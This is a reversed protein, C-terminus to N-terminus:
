RNARDFDLVNELFDDHLQRVSDSSASGGYEKVRQDLYKKRKDKDWLVRYNGGLSQKYQMTAIAIKDAEKENMGKESKLQEAFRLAMVQDEKDTIGRTIYNNVVRQRMAKGQGPFEKNYHEIVDERNYWKRGYEEVTQVNEGQYSGEKYAEVIGNRGQGMRSTAFVSAGVTGIGEVPNYNGDTISIGAQVAAAGIGVALGASGKIIKGVLRKTNEGPDKGPYWVPKVATKAVNKVGKIVKSVKGANKKNNEDRTQNMRRAEKRNRQEAREREKSKTQEQQKDQQNPNQQENRGAMKKLEEKGFRKELYQNEAMRRKVKKLLKSSQKLLEERKEPSINPDQAALNLRKIEKLLQSTTRKDNDAYQWNGNFLAENERVRNELQAELGSVQSNLKEIEKPSNDGYKLKGQKSALMDLISGISKNDGDNFSLGGLEDISNGSVEQRARYISNDVNSLTPDEGSDTGGSSGSRSSGPSAFDDDGSHRSSSGGRIDTGIFSDFNATDNYADMLELDNDDYNYDNGSSGSSSGSKGKKNKGSFPHLPDRIYNTLAGTIAGTAFAGAIGGVSGADAKEFGFINKLLREAQSIFALAAIAYLPNNVALSLSTSVLLYYLIYHVPQLFANFMYDKLWTNFGKAQGNMKDIPYTLAVIPAILTLFAMRIVRKLYVITFKITYTILAIYIVLHGIKASFHQQQMQFRALGILNTKFSEGTALKVEIVGAISGILETIEETVAFIFGMIYHMVFVLAVAIIWNYIMEKYKAKEKANSSLIIKIGTYILVSLLGIIAVMRLVQYWQSVISRIDEWQSVIKKNGESSVDHDSEKIFNANLFPFNGNFVEESSYKFNPYELDLAGSVTRYEDLEEENITFTTTPDGLDTTIDEISQVMVPEFGEQVMFSSVISVISDIVFQFFWVTPEMLIGAYTDLGTDPSIIDEFTFDNIGGSGGSGKYGNFLWEILDSRGNGDEDLNFAENPVAGHDGPVVKVEDANPIQKYQNAYFSYCTGDNTGKYGRTPMTVDAYNIKKSGNVLLDGNADYGSLIALKSFRYPMLDTRGAMYLAGAGGLSHGCIVINSTDINGKEKVFTEIVNAVKTAINDDCWTDIGSLHPAIVYANFAKGSTSWSDLVGLLGTGSLNSAGGGYNVLVM